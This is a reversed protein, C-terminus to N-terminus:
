EPECTELEEFRQVEIACRAERIYGDVGRVRIQQTVDDVCAAIISEGQEGELMEAMTPDAARMLDILHNCLRDPMLEPPLEVGEPLTAPERNAGPDEPNAGDAVALSDEACREIGPMDVAGLVCQSMTRYFGDGYRAHDEVLSSVCSNLMDSRENSPIPSGMDVEFLALIHSCVEQPAPLGASQGKDQGAWPDNGPGIAGDQGGDDPTVSEDQDARKCGAEVFLLPVILSTVTLLRSVLAIDRVASSNGM